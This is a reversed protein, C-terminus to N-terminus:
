KTHNRFCSAAMFDLIINLIAGNSLTHGLKRCLKDVHSYFCLESDLELGPLKATAVQELTNGEITVVSLQTDEMSKKKALRKGTILLTKTKSQSLPLKNTNAWTEVDQWTRNLTNEIDTQISCNPASTM